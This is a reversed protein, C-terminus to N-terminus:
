RGMYRWNRPKGEALWELAQAVRKARTEPRKAETIWEVYERRHSPSFANWTAMARRDRELPAALDAPARDSVKPRPSKSRPAKVGADELEMARRIYGRLERKGPLDAPRTMRGFQGMAEGARDPRATEILSYKWFGFTVHQKFAAMGCLIAGRYLFAPSRWKLTEEVEPCADHVAERLRELLPRAFAASAAIYADIRPDRTGM